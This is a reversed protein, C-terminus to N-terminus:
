RCKSRRLTAALASAAALALGLMIRKLNGRLAFSRSVTSRHCGVCTRRCPEPFQIRPWGGHAAKQAVIAVLAQCDRTEDCNVADRPVSTTGDCEVQRRRVQSHPPDAAPKTRVFLRLTSATTAVTAMSITAHTATTRSLRSRRLIMQHGHREATVLGRQSCRTNDYPWKPRRM